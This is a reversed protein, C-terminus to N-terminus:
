GAVKMTGIDHNALAIPGKISLTTKLKGGVAFWHCGPDRMVIRVTKVASAGHGAASAQGAGLVVACGAIAFLMTSRKRMLAFEKRARPRAQQSFEPRAHIGAPEIRARRGRPRS